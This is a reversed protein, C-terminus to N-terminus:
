DVDIVEAIWAANMAMLVLVIRVLTANTVPAALDYKFYHKGEIQEYGRANLEGCLKGNAKQKMAWTSTMIKAGKPLDKKKVATLANFRNFCSKENAVEKIWDKKNNGKMAEKFNVVKLKTTKELGGGGVGLM